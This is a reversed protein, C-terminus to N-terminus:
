EIAGPHATRETSREGVGVLDQSFDPDRGLYIGEM